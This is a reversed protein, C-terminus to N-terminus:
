PPAQLSEALLRGNHEIAQAFNTKLENELAGAKDKQGAKRYDQALLWRAYAGVEVGDGYMCDGFKQICEQLRQEREDGQSSQALYLVACGTRNIDPYKEVMKKLSETANTTGWEKNAVQYWGEAENLQDRTFKAQDRALRAEFKKRLEKRRNDAELQGKLPAVIQSIDQVQKELAAVREKLQAVEDTSTQALLPRGLALTLTLIGWIIKRKM